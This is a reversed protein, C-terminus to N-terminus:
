LNQIEKENFIYYIIFPLYLNVGFDQKLNGWSTYVKSVEFRESSKIVAVCVKTIKKKENRKM